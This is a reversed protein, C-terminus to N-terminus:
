LEARLPELAELFEEANKVRPHNLLEFEPYSALDGLAARVERERDGPFCLAREILVEPDLAGGPGFELGALLQPHREAAGRAAREVAVVPATPEALLRVHTRVCERLATDAGPVSAAQAGATNRVVRLAG